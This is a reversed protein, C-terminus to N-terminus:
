KFPQLPWVGESEGLLLNSPPVKMQLHGPLLAGKTKALSCAALNSGDM